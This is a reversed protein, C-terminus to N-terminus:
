ILVRIVYATCIKTGITTLSFSLKFKVNFIITM